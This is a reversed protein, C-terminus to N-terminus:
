EKHELKFEVKFMGNFGKFLAQLREKEKRGLNGRKCQVFTITNGKLDIITCDVPSLSAASRYAILGKAKAANVIEREYRIGKNKNSM